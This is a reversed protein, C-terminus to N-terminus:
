RLHTRFWAAAQDAVAELTGPQEFLHGAGPIVVLDTECRMQAQAERNLRLVEQDLGGVILRTAATVAGLRAVALDPRGGRSVVAAVSTGLDGAAWLAAAAGTSAGFYGIPLDGTEPQHRLWETAAVLRMGLLPVDFVNARDTAESAELLDFLLTAMGADNLTRAVEVNRPSRRSSGSGHAFIVTGLPERPVAFDAELRVGDARVETLRHEMEDM